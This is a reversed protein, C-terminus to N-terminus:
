SSPYYLLYFHTTIQIFPAAAIVSALRDGLLYKEVFGFTREVMHVRSQVFKKLGQYHLDRTKWGWFVM